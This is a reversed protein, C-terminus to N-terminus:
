NGSKLSLATSIEAAKEAKTETTAKSSVRAADLMASTKLFALVAASRQAALAALVDTGLPQLEIVQNFMAEYFQRDSSGRGILALAPNVRSVAKGTTKEHSVKFKDISDKGAREELLAEITRQTKQQAFYERGRRHRRWRKPRAPM